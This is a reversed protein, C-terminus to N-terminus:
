AKWVGVVTLLLGLAMLSGGSVRHWWSPYRFRGLFGLYRAYSDNVGQVMPEGRSFMWYGMLVFGVGFIVVIPKLTWTPM